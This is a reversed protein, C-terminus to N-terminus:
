WLHNYTGLSRSRKGNAYFHQNSHSVQLPVLNEQRVKWRWMVHTECAFNALSFSFTTDAIFIMQLNEYNEATAMKCFNDKNKGM